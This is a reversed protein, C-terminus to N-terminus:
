REDKELCQGLQRRFMESLRRSDETEAHNPTLEGLFAFASSLLQGGAVAIRERQAQERAVKEQGARASEDLPAEPKAGLLVELRRKLESRFLTTYPFLTSRPPRRIM